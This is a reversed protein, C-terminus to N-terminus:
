VYKLAKHLITTDSLDAGINLSTSKGICRPIPNYQDCSIFGAGQIDNKDIGMRNAFQAHDHSNIFIVIETHMPGYFTIYKMGNM